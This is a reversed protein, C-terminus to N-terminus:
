KQQGTGESHDELRQQRLCKLVSRPPRLMMEPSKGEAAIFRIQRGRFHSSGRGEEERRCGLRHL